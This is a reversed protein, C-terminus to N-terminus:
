VLLANFFRKIEFYNRICSTVFTFSTQPVGPHRQGLGGATYTEGHAHPRSRTCRLHTLRDRGEVGFQDM